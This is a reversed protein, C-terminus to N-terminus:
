AEDVVGMADVQAAVAQAPLQGGFWDLSSGVGWGNFVVMLGTVLPWGHRCRDSDGASMADSCVASMMPIRVAEIQHRVQRM